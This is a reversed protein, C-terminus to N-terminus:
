WGFREMTVGDWPKRHKERNKAPKKQGLFTPASLFRHFQFVGRFNMFDTKGWLFGDVGMGGFVM